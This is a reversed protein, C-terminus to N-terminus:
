RAKTISARTFPHVRLFNDPIEKGAKIRDKVFAKLTSPPVARKILDQLNHGELWEFFNDQETVKVQMDGTLSVRGIGEYTIKEIGEEEMKGPVLEIRLVDYSANLEKLEEEV